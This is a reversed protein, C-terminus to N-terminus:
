DTTGFMTTRGLGALLTTFLIGLLELMTLIANTLTDVSASTLVDGYPKVTMDNVILDLTYSIVSAM